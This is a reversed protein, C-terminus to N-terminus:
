STQLDPINGGLTNGGTTTNPNVNIESNAVAATGSCISVTIGVRVSQAGETALVSEVLLPKTVLM